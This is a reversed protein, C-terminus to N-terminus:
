GKLFIELSYFNIVVVWCDVYLFLIIKKKGNIVLNSREKVKNKSSFSKFVVDFLVLFGLCRKENRKIFFIIENERNLISFIM